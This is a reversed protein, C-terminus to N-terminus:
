ANIEELPILNRVGRDKHPIVEPCQWGPGPNDQRLKSYAPLVGCAFCRERCDIRTERRKSMLYDETLFKKKLAIKVLPLEIGKAEQLAVQLDMCEQVQDKSILGQKVALAMVMLEQKNPM